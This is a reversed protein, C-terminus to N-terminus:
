GRVPAEPFFYITVTLHTRHTRPYEHKTIITVTSYLTYM